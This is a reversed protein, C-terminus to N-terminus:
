ARTTEWNALEFLIAADGDKNWVTRGLGWHLIHTTTKRNNASTTNEGVKTMLKIWDGKRVSMKRFWYIHRLENSIHHEDTYTTDSVMFDSLSPVDEKVDFWVCENQLEGKNDISHVKIRM